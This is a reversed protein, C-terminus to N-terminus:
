AHLKTGPHLVLYTTIGAIAVVLPLYFSVITRSILTRVWGHAVSKYKQTNMDFLDVNESRRVADFLSRLLREERLYYADLGWFAAVTGVGLMAGVIGERTTLALATSVVAITWAKINFSNSAMRNIVVQIMELHKLRDGTSVLSATAPASSM